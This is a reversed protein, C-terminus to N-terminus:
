QQGGLHGGARSCCSRCRGRVRVCGCRPACRVRACRSCPLLLPSGPSGGVAASGWTHPTGKCQQMHPVGGRATAPSPLHMSASGRTLGGGKTLKVVPPLRGRTTFYMYMDNAPHPLPAFAQWYPSRLCLGSAGWHEL